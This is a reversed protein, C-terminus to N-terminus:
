ACSFSGDDDRMGDSTVYKGRLNTWIRDDKPWSSRAQLQTAVPDWLPATRLWCSLVPVQLIPGSLQSVRSYGALMVARWLAAGRRTMPARDSGGMARQPRPLRSGHVM